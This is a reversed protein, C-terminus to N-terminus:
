SSNIHKPLVKPIDTYVEEPTKYALAHHIREENYWKVIEQLSEEPHKKFRKKLTDFWKEMKGNTQPHNRRSSWFEIGLMALEKEFRSPPREGKKNKKSNYFQTGKDSLIVAPCVENILMAQHLLFIANDETANNFVGSAMIRRSKDDIYALYWKGKYKSWDTHWMYNSIPWEYRVYKRQGRRKPCPDTLKEKDLIKQIQRQSVNFGQKTLVFHLKESGYDHRKRLSIVRKAFRLNIKHPPRGPQKAKYAAVGEKKYKHVLKYVMQRSIKQIRAISTAGRGSRFQNIIWKRKEETLKEM